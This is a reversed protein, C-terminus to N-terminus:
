GNELDEAYSYETQINESPTEAEQKEASPYVRLGVVAAYGISRYMRDIHNKIPKLQM